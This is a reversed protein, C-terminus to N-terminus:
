LWNNSERGVSSTKEELDKQAFSSEAQATKMKENEFYNGALKSERLSPMFNQFLRMM